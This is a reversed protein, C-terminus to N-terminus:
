KRKGKRPDVRKQTTDLTARSMGAPLPAKKRELKYANNKETLCAKYDDSFKATNSDALAGITRTKTYSYIAQSQWHRRPSRKNSCFPCTPTVESIEHMLCVVDFLKGCGKAEDDCLFVYTPM